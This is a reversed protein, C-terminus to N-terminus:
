KMDDYLSYRNKKKKSHYLAMDAERYMEEYSQGRYFTAGASPTVMISEVANKCVINLERVVRKLVPHINAKHLMNPLFIIYEDGGLRGIIDGTRFCEKLKQAAECLIKDGMPHGFKDNVEKFNDLDLILLVANERKNMKSLAEKILRESGSRNYLQTLSDTMSERQAKELAMENNYMDTVDIRQLLVYGKSLDLPRYTVLKKRIEGHEGIFGEVFSFEQRSELENLIFEPSMQKKVLERDEESIFKDAYSLMEQTYNYGETPPMGYEESGSIFQFFYGTKLDIGYFHDTTDRIYSELIPYLREKRDMLEMVLYAKTKSISSPLVSIKVFDYQFAAASLSLSLFKKRKEKVCSCISRYSLFTKVNSWESEDVYHTCLKEVLEPLPSNASAVSESINEVDHKLLHLRQSETDYEYIVSREQIISYLVDEKEAKLMKLKYENQIDQIVFLLEDIGNIQVAYLTGRVWRYRGCNVGRRFDISASVKKEAIKQMSEDSFFEYVKKQEEAPVCKDILDLISIGDKMVPCHNHRYAILHIAKTKRDVLLIDEYARILHKGCLSMKFFDAIHYGDEQWINNVLKHTIDRHLGFTVLKGDEQQSSLAADCRVVTKGYQPHNWIYEVEAPQGTKILREVAKDVYSLYVPEIREHWHQYLREPQMEQEVGLIIYMNTDGYLQPPRDAIFEMRWIGGGIDNLIKKRENENIIYSNGTKSM